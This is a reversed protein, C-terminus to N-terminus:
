RPHDGVVARLRAVTEDQAAAARDAKKRRPAPERLVDWQVDPRLEECRVEGGTAREIAPCREAPVQRPNVDATWQSILVPSCGLANALSVARGREASIYTKLDM